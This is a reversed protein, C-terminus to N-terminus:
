VERMGLSAELLEIIRLRMRENAAQLKGVQKARENGAQWAIDVMKQLEDVQELLWPVDYELCYTPSDVMNIRIKALRQEM